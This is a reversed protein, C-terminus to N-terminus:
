MCVILTLSESHSMEVKACVDVNYMCMCAAFLDSLVSIDFNPLKRWRVRCPTIDIKPNEFIKQRYGDVAYSNQFAISGSMMHWHIRAHLWHGDFQDSSITCKANRLAVM